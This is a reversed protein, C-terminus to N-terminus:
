RPPAPLPFDERYVGRFGDGEERYEVSVVQRPGTYYEGVVRMTSRLDRLTHTSRGSGLHVIICSGGVEVNDSLFWYFIGEEGVIPAAATDASYHEVLTVFAERMHRRRLIVQAGHEIRICNSM